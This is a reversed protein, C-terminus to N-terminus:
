DNIIISAILPTTIFVVNRGFGKQDDEPIWIEQYPM